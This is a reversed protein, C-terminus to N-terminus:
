ESYLTDLRNVADSMERLEAHDYIDNTSQWTHNLLRMAQEKTAGTELLRTNATHRFRHLNAGDVGYEAAIRSFHTSIHGPSYTTLEPIVEGETKRFVQLYDRLRNAMPVSYPCTKSFTFRIIGREFDIDGWKLARISSIRAGTYAAIWAAHRLWDPFPVDNLLKNVESPSYPIKVVKPVHILKAKRWPSQSNPDVIGEDIAWRWIGHLVRCRQRATSASVESLQYNMYEAAVEDTVDAVMMLKRELAWQMFYRIVGDYADQTAPRSTIFQPRSTYTRFMEQLKHPTRRYPVGLRNASIRLQITACADVVFQPPKQLGNHPIQSSVFRRRGNETYRIWWYPSDNRIYATVM